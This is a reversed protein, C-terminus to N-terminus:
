ELRDFKRLEPFLRAWLGTVFLSAVGGFIAAGVPGFLRATVGSEFEGLENSAGIFLFSVAAVRGRMPDPTVIQILTQRVYVSLMDAGGMIVLAAITLWFSKSIGFILVCAGFVAVGGFMRLGARDRPPNAALYLGVLAAGMAPSARLVGFGEEGVHLVDRAFVPLLAMVGGLLVAVMDLSIAGFVVKNTWVYRLGAKILDVRSGEQTEPKTPKRILALLVFSIAYLTICVAYSAAPSVAILFGAAVPGAINGVQFSMSNWAIARPLLARPVLMPALATGAPARFARTIGFAFGLLVLVLASAAGSVSLAVLVAATCCSKKRTYRDAAEGAPLFLILLPLFTALGLYGVWLASVPISETQRVTEYIQWGMTVSQATTGLVGFFRALWMFM